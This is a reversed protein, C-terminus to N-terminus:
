LRKEVVDILASIGGTAPSESEAIAQILGERNAVLLDRVANLQLQYTEVNAIQSDRLNMEEHDLAESVGGMQQRELTRILRDFAAKESFNLASM